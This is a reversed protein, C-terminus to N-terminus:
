SSYTAINHLIMIVLELVRENNLSSVQNCRSLQTTYALYKLGVVVIRVSTM